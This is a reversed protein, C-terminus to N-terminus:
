KKLLIKKEKIKIKEVWYLKSVSAQNINIFGSEM